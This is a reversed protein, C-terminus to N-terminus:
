KYIFRQFPDTETKLTQWNFQYRQDVPWDHAYQVRYYRAVSEDYGDYPGETTLFSDGAGTTANFFQTALLIALGGVADTLASLTARSFSGHRDHKAANYSKYWDLSGSPDAWSSFPQRVGHQGTWNPYKVRCSSLRHSQNVKKYDKMTWDSGSRPYGNAELIATLNAEVEICTRTLLEHVRFSYTGGNSDAPEIFDFLEILDKQIVDFARLYHEVDTAYAPHEVYGWRGGEKFLDDTFQRTTRYYPRDVPM